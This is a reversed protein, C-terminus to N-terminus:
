PQESNDEKRKNKMYPNDLKEGPRIYDMLTGSDCGDRSDDDLYDYDALHWDKIREILRRIM